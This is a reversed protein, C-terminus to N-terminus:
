IRKGNAANLLDGRRPMNLMFGVLAILFLFYYYPDSTTFRLLLGCLAAAECLAFALIYASSIAQPRQQEIARAVMKQRLFISVLATFTGLATLAIVLVRNYPLSAPSPGVLAALVAFLAINVLFAGWLIWLTLHRQQSNGERANDPQM